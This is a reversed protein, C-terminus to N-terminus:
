VLYIKQGADFRIGAETPGRLIPASDHSGSTYSGLPPCGGVVSPSTQGEPTIREIRAYASEIRSSYETVEHPGPPFSRAPHYSSSGFRM